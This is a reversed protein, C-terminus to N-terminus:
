IEEPNIVLFGERGAVQCLTKDATVFHDVLGGTRLGIAVALQIADLARLHFDFANRELLSEALAFEPEGVSFVALRGTAIDHRFQLRFLDADQRSIVQTRVKIAFASILEAITLRSSRLANGAANLINQVAPTGAEIHYFKVVASTDFFFGAM